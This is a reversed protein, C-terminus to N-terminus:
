TGKCVIWDRSSRGRAAGAATDPAEAEAKNSEAKGEENISRTDELSMSHKVSRPNGSDSKVNRHCDHRIRQETPM